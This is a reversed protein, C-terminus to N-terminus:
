IVRMIASIQGEVAIEGDVSAKIDCWWFDRKKKKLRCELILQDGPIVVRRFRIGDVGTFLVELRKDSDKFEDYVSFCCCQALAEIMLVGPMIPNGPFHGNFFEENMTVNKLARVYDPSYELVRDVLIFPYRHPIFKQIAAIDLIKKNELTIIREKGIRSLTQAYRALCECLRGTEGL